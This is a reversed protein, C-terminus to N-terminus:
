PSPRGGAPPNLAHAQYLYLCCARYEPMEDTNLVMDFRIELGYHERYFTKLPRVWKKEMLFFVDQRDVLSLSYPRLQHEDLNQRFIPSHTIWGYSPVLFFPAEETQPHFFISQELISDYPLPVLVPKQGPPLLTRVPEFIRRSTIKLRRNFANAYWLSEGLNYVFSVYLIAYGFVFALTTCRLVGLRRFTPLFRDLFSTGSVGAPLTHFGSAWYLCIVHLFLPMNYSVREPLRATGQLYIGLLVFLFYSVLLTNFCRRRQSRAAYVCWVANLLALKLLSGSDRGFVSALFLFRTPAKLFFLPTAGALEKLRDVLLRMRSVSAYVEPEAFYFAGFLWADNDSWGVAPAAQPTFRQLRTVHIQGRLDNYERFDAWAPDLAYYWRNVGDLALFLAAFALGVGLMRRWGVTGFREILFPLSILILMPAVAERIMVM